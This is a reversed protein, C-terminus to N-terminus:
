LGQKKQSKEFPKQLEMILYDYYDENWIEMDSAIVPKGSIDIKAARKNTTCRCPGKSILWCGEKSCDVNRDPDCVYIKRNRGDKGFLRKFVQLIKKM